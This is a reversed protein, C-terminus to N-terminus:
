NHHGITNITDAIQNTLLNEVQDQPLPKFFFYGQQILCSKNDLWEKIELTEVGEAIVGLSLMKSLGIIAEVIKAAEDDTLVDEIFSKDIKIYDLPMKRLLSLSSYGTGFDDLAISFGADKLEKLNKGAAIPDEIFATETIELTFWKPHASSQSFINILTSPLESSHLQNASLNVAIKQSPKLLGKEIWQSATTVIDNFLWYSFTHILNNDEILQIFQTPPIDEGLPSNWRSLVEFGILEGTISSVLPQYVTYFNNGSKDYLDAHIMNLLTANEELKKDYFHFQNKGLSKAKYLALDAKNLMESPTHIIKDDTVSIGISCSINISRSGIDIPLNIANVIKQAIPIISDVTKLDTFIVSFEDGGLRAISDENRVVMSLRSAVDQIVKDGAPHGLTDNVHKFSDLDIFMLATIGHRKSRSLAVKLYENFFSRNCLGTLADKRAMKELKEAHSRSESIDNLTIIFGTIEHRENFLGIANVSVWLTTNDVGKLQFEGKYPKSHTASQQIKYLVDEIVREHICKIWGKSQADEVSQGTYHTWTQNAYNCHWHSDLQLIAMPVVRTLANFIQLSSFYDNKKDNKEHRESLMLGFCQSGSYELSFLKIDVKAREYSNHVFDVDQWHEKNLHGLFSFKNITMFISSAANPIFKKLLVDILPWGRDLNSNFLRQSASNAKLVKLDEDFIFTPHFTHKFIADVVSREEKVINDSLSKSVPLRSIKKQNALLSISVTILPAVDPLRKTFASTEINVLLIVAYLQHQDKIPIYRINNIYKHSLAHSDANYERSLYEEEHSCSGELYCQKLHSALSSSVSKAIYETTVSVQTDTMVSMSNQGELLFGIAFKAKNVRVLREVCEKLVYNSVNKM